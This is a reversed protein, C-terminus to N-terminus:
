AGEQASSHREWFVLRSRVFRLGFSMGIGCLALALIAAFNLSLDSTNASQQILFGLGESGVIFEMVVDGILAFILGVELGAFIQSAAGPLKVDFLVQMRGAGVTRYFADLNRDYGRLGSVANILVPFYSTLAAMTLIAPQGFGIWVFVLPALAIKPVSQLALILPMLFREVPRCESILVSLALAISSGIAFGALWTALTARVHPWISGELMASALRQLVEGPGPLLYSAVAGSAVAAWWALLLALLAAFPPALRRLRMPFGRMTM